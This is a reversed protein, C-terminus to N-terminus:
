PPAEAARLDERGAPATTPTVSIIALSDDENLVPPDVSAVGAEADLASVLTAVTASWTRVPCRRLHRRRGRLPGNVGDGYADAILDYAKRTTTSPGDNGADMFALRMSFVPMALVALIVAATVGYRVPHAVVRAAWRGSKSQSGDAPRQKIFPVRLSNVRRGVLGLLAPLLTVAALMTVIVMIASAWGMTTMMSIGSVQLGAIALVVTTGAFLVSLGATANARGVAVPVSMGSELNQRHRALIFLAYDIGVGLGIMLGVTSAIEPMDVVGSLLGIASTGVLIGVLAVVIPLSMAVLSGFAIALVVIAILLGIKESGPETDGKAYGLGGDYEM